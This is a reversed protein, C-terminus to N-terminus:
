ICEAVYKKVEPFFLDFEGKYLDYDKKLDEVAKEMGSPFTTRYALGEMSRQLFELSAYSAMWNASIMFPLIRKTKAPLILFHRLLTRYRGLTHEVLDEESYVGWNSALFHDYFMDTIVGAYKRYKKRLRARSQSVVPHHDTFTDIARHLSIGKIIGENFRKIGNGKVHDAIFNGIFLEQDDGSLYSHALYNM